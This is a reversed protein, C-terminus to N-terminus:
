ADGTQRIKMCRKLPKSLNITVRVRMYERWVGMYNSSCSDVYKGIYNGVPKVVKELVFGVQLDHIQVWLDLENLHVCRPNQGEKLQAM